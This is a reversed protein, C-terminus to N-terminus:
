SSNKSAEIKKNISDLIQPGIDIVWQTTRYDLEEGHVAKNLVGIIDALAAREQNTIIQKQYLGYMMMSISSRASMAVGEKRNLEDLKKLSKELEIRLGALALSPNIEAIELFAYDKNLHTPKDNILGAAKAAMEVRELEKFEFKLGGPLELSKILPALWPAIAIIILTLTISDIKLTPWIIHVIAVLLATLTISIQIKKISDMTHGFLNTLNNTTNAYLEYTRM